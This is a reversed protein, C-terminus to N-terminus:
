EIVFNVIVSGCVLHWQKYFVPDNFHLGAPQVPQVDPVSRRISSDLVSHLRNPETRKSRSLVTQVSHWEVFSHQDLKKNVRNILKLDDEALTRNNVKNKTNELWEGSFSEETFVDTDRGYYVSNSSRASINVAMAYYGFLAGIQGLNDLGVDNAVDDAAMSVHDKAVTQMDLKVAWTLPTQSIKQQDQATAPEASNVNMLMLLVLICKGYIFCHLQVM